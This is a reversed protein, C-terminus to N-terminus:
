GRRYAMQRGANRRAAPDSMNFSPFNWDGSGFKEGVKFASYVLAAAIAAQAILGWQQAAAMATTEAAAYATEKAAQAKRLATWAGYLMYLSHNTIIGARLGKLVPTNEDIEIGLARLNVLTSSLERPSIGHGGGISMRPSTTLADTTGGLSDYAASLPIAAPLDGIFATDSPM